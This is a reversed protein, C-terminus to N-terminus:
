VRERCSARGIQGAVINMLLLMAVFLAVVFYMFTNDTKLLSKTNVDFPLAVRIYVDDFKRAYYLYERNATRSIRIYTGKGSESAMLIEPRNAHNDMQFVDNISNDYKVAGQKDILSVRINNPFLYIVSDLTEIRENNNRLATHIIEACVDLKGELAETRFKKERSQEFVVVGFTFVGFIITFYFFLKHKYSLKM